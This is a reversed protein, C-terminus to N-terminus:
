KLKCGTGYAAGAANNAYKSKGGDLDMDVFYLAGNIGCPQTSVDVDFAFERNKLMYKKYTSPSDMMYTRAGINTDYQGVTVLKISMTDGNVDIGYTGPYDAGDIACNKACTM